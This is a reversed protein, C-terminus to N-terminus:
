IWDYENIHQQLVEDNLSQTSSYQDTLSGFLSHKKTGQEELHM